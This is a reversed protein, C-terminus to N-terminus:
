KKITFSWTYVYLGGEWTKKELGLVKQWINRHNRKWDRVDWSIHYWDKKHRVNILALSRQQVSEYHLFEPAQKLTDRAHVHNYQAMDYWHTPTNGARTHRM